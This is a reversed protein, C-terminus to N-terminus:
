NKKKCTLHEPISASAGLCFLQLETLSGFVETIIAGRELCLLAFPGAATTRFPAGKRCSLCVYHSIKIEALPVLNHYQTSTDRAVAAWFGAHFARTARAAAGISVSSLRREAAQRLCDPLPPPGDEAGIFSLARTQETFVEPCPVEPPDVVEWETTETAPTESSSSSSLRSVALSLQQIAQTLNAIIADKDSETSM